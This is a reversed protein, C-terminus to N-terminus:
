EHTSFESNELAYVSVLRIFQGTKAYSSLVQHPAITFWFAEDLSMGSFNLYTKLCMTLWVLHSQSGFEEM